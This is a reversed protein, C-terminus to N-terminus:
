KKRKQRRFIEELTPIKEKITIGVAASNSKNEIYKNAFKFRVSAPPLPIQGHVGFVPVIKYSLVREEKDFLDDLKWVLETGHPSKKKEPKVGETERVAFVSPVFDRVTVDPVASGSANKIDIGVTFESGEEIMKRQMIRKGIRVTRLKVLIFWSVVLIVFLSVVATLYDIKYSIIVSEGPKLNKVVWVFKDDAAYSPRDGSFFVSAFKSVDEAIDIDGIANGDNRLSIIKGYGTAFPTYEVVEKKIVPKEAVAFKDTFTRVNGQYSVTIKVAYEGPESLRPLYFVDEITVTQAPDVKEVVSTLGTIKRSKSEISVNVVINQVTSTGFNRLTPSLTVKGTPFLDGTVLTRDVYIGTEKVVSIFIDRYKKEKTPVSEATLRIGYLGTNVDSRPSAYVSVTENGGAKILFSSPTVLMWPREGVASIVVTDDTNSTFVVDLKNSSDLPVILTDKEATFDFAFVASVSLLFCLLVYKKM